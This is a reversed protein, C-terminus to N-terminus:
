RRAALLNRFLVRVTTTLKGRNFANACLRISDATTPYPHIVTALSALGTNAVMASTVESIIDGAHDAVITCGVIKDTGKACLIKVFGHTASDCIARDVDHFESRFTTFEIGRERLDREYLGVHAVEPSTYTCWPVVLSSLTSKGFFLANRIVIRAMADAMHTFQFANAVVDGCAYITPNSTQLFDNVIVGRARDYKVGARELNLGEVNAKRGTAVLLADVELTVARKAEGVECQLTIPTGRGGAQSAHLVACHLLLDVNESALQAGIVARADEDERTMVSGSRGLLSVKSGFRAFAQAIECGIAGTGLVAFRPPLTTLNFLSENTLFDVQELGAIQPVAARGGTAICARAFQLTQGNVEVTNASTFRAAGLFVDVGLSQFRAVSDNKAISARIQRMREMVKPFDCRVSGDIVLGLATGNKAEYIAKAARLLAKSPVCGYNLCDGGMLHREIIAVKAGVGASGAATVLGAAGAGIAVMNYVGSPEPNVHGRPHVADLLKLNHEDLPSLELLQDVMTMVEDSAAPMLSPQMGIGSDDGHVLESWSPGAELPKMFRFFLQENCFEHDKTVHELLGRKGMAQGLEVAGAVDAAFKHEVLWQVAERAVFSDRFTKLFYRRNRM